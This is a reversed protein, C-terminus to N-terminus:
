VDVSLFLWIFPFSARLCTSLFVDSLSPLLSIKIKNFPFIINFLLSLVRHCLCIVCDTQSLCVSASISIFNHSLMLIVVSLRFAIFKFEIPDAQTQFPVSPTRFWTGFSKLRNSIREFTTIWFHLLNKKITLLNADVKVYHPSGWNFRCLRFCRLTHADDTFPLEFSYSSWSCQHDIFVKIVSYIYSYFTPRCLTCWIFHNTRIENRM